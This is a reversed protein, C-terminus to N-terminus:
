FYGSVVEVENEDLRDLFFRYKMRWMTESNFRSLDSDDAIAGFYDGVVLYKPSDNSTAKALAREENGTSM